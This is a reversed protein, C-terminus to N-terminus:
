QDSNTPSLKPWEDQMTAALTKQDTGAPSTLCIEKKWALIDYAAVIERRTAEYQRKTAKLWCVVEYVVDLDVTEPDDSGLCRKVRATIFDYESAM